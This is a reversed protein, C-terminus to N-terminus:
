KQQGLAVRVLHCLPSLSLWGQSPVAEKVRVAVDGGKQLWINKEQPNSKKYTVKSANTFELRKFFQLLVCTCMAEQVRKWGPLFRSIQEVSGALLPLVAASM